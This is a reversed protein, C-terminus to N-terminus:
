CYNHQVHIPFAGTIKVLTKLNSLKMYPFLEKRSLHNLNICMDAPFLVNSGDIVVLNGNLNRPIKILNNVYGYPMPIPPELLHYYEM